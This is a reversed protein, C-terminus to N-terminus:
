SVNSVYFFGIGQLLIKWFEDFGNGLAPSITRLRWLTTQSQIYGLVTLAAVHSDLDMRIQGQDRAARFKSRFLDLAQELIRLINETYEPDQHFMAGSFLVHPAGQHKRLFTFFLMVIERLQEIPEDSKPPHERLFTTLDTQISKLMTLVIQKKSGFHKYIAADSVGVKEAIRRMTLQDQGSEAIIELAAEVIQRQRTNTPKRDM